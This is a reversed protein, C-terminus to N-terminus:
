LLWNHTDLYWFLIATLVLALPIGLLMTVLYKFKTKAKTCRKKLAFYLSISVKKMCYENGDITHIWLASPGVPRTRITGVETLLVFYIKEIDEMPIVQGDIIIENDLFAVYYKDRKKRVLSYVGAFTFAFFLTTVFIAIITQFVENDLPNGTLVWLPLGMVIFYYLFLFTLVIARQGYAKKYQKM